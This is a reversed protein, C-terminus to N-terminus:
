MFNWPLKQISPCVNLLTLDSSIAILYIAKGTHWRTEARRGEVFLDGWWNKWLIPSVICNKKRLIGESLRWSLNHSLSCYWALLITYVCNMHWCVAQCTMYAEVPSWIKCCWDESYVHIILLMSPHTLESNHVDM